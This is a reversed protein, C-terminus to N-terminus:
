VVMAWFRRCCFVDFVQRRFECPYFSFAVSEEIGDINVVVVGREGGMKERSLVCTM